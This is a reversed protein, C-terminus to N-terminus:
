KRERHPEPAQISKIKCQQVFHWLHPIVFEQCFGQVLITTDGSIRESRLLECPTVYLDMTVGDPAVDPEADFGPCRFLLSIEGDLRDQM